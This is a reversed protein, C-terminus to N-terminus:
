ADAAGTRYRKFHVLNTKPRAKARVASFYRVDSGLSVLRSPPRWREDNGEIGVINTREMKIGLGITFVIM